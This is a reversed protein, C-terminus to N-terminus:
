SELLHKDQHVNGIIEKPNGLFQHLSGYALEGSEPHVHEVYFGDWKYVVTGIVTAVKKKKGIFEFGNPLDCYVVEFLDGEFVEEGNKDTLTTFQMVIQDAVDQNGHLSAFAGDWVDFYRMVKLRCDWCRFLFEESM